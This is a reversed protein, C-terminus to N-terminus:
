DDRVEKRLEDGCWPCHTITIYAWETENHWGRNEVNLTFGYHEEEIRTMHYPPEEYEEGMTYVINGSPVDHMTCYKCSM